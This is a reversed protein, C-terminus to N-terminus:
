EAIHTLVFPTNGSFLCVAKTSLENRLIMLQNELTLSFIHGKDKTM